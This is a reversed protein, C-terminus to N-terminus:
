HQLWVGLLCSSQLAQPAGLHPIRASYLLVPSQPVPSPPPPQIRRSVQSAQLQQAPLQLGGSGERLWPNGGEPSVKECREDAPVQKQRQLQFPFFFFLSFLQRSQIRNLFQPLHPKLLLPDAKRECVLMLSSGEMEVLIKQYEKPFYSIKNCYLTSYTYNPPMESTSGIFVGTITEKELFYCVLFVHLSLSCVQPQWRTPLSLSSSPTQAQYICVTVNLTPLCCPRSYLVSFQIWDGPM